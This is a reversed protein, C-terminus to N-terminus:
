KGEGPAVTLPQKAYKLTFVQKERYAHDIAETVENAAPYSVNGNPYNTIYGAYAPNQNPRFSDRDYRDELGLLHAAEHAAHGETIDVYWTGRDISLSSREHMEMEKGDYQVIEQSGPGYIQINLIVTYENLEEDYIVQAIHGTPDTFRLPNGLVYMYRNFAQPNGPGPVVTDASVFRGGAPWYMCANYDGTPASPRRGRGTYRRDTPTTGWTWRTEGFPMYRLEAVGEAESLALKQGSVNTTLSASGLYYGSSASPHDGHLWYVAGGTRMAVTGSGASTRQGGFTYYSTSENTTTIHEFIANVIMVTGAAAPNCIQTSGCSTLPRKPVPAARARHDM